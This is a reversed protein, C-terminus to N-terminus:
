RATETLPGTIYLFPAESLDVVKPTAPVDLGFPRVFAEVFRRCREEDKRPDRIAPELQELHEAVNGAAHVLGHLFEALM